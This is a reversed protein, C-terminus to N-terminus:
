GERGKKVRDRTLEVLREPTTNRTGLAHELPVRAKAERDLADDAQAQVAHVNEFFEDYTPNDSQYVKGQGVRPEGAAGRHGLTCGALALAATLSGFRALAGFHLRM